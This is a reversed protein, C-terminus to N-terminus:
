LAGRPRPARVIVTRHLSAPRRGVATVTVVVEVRMRGLRALSRRSWPRLRIRVATSRGAGLRLSATGVSVRGPPRGAASTRPVTADATIRCGGVTWCRARVGVAFSGDRAATLAATGIAIAAGAVARPGPAPPGPGPSGPVGAGAGAGPTAAGPPPQADLDVTYTAPSTSWKGSADHFEVYITHPGEVASGGYDRLDWSISMPATPDGTYTRAPSWTAGDNSLRVQDVQSVDDRGIAQVTVTPYATRSLLGRVAVTGSPPNSDQIAGAAVEFRVVGENDQASKNSPDARGASEYLFNGPDTISRLVYEGDPLFPQGPSAPVGLDIWQEAFSSSYTDGWGVSLGEFLRGSADPMCGGPGYARSAPTGSPTAVLEWDRACSSTKTGPFLTTVPGTRGGAVWADWDTAKWLQYEGWHDLHYHNHSAHYYFEAGTPYDAYTGDSRYVRQMAPGRHTSPDISGWLELRGPGRDYVTNSFRLLNHNAPGTAFRLDRPALTALDPYLETPAAVSFRALGAFLVLTVAALLGIHRGRLRGHGKV